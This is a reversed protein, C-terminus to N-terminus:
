RWTVVHEWGVPLSAPPEEYIWGGDLGDAQASLEFHCMAIGLDSRQIDFPFLAGYGPTRRLCFHFAAGTKIIRWPQRNSASPARRLDELARAWPGAAEPSLPTGAEGDLFLDEWPLRQASRAIFRTMRELFFGKDSPYGLPTVAPLCEDKGLPLARAFSSRDFTGALWCTGIGLETAKLIIREFAWGYGEVKEASRPFAAGLFLSAGRITGYTGLRASASARATGSGGGELFVFRIPRGLHDTGSTRVAEELASRHAASLTKGDFSRCSRREAIIDHIDRSFTM